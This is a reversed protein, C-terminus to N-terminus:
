MDLNTPEVESSLRVLEGCAIPLSEAPTREGLGAATAPVEESVGHIVVIRKALSFNEYPSVKTLYDKPNPDDRMLDDLLDMVSTSRRYVIAGAPNAIPGYDMGDVQSSLNSDLPILVKGYFNMGEMADIFGDQNADANQDPCKGGTTIFQYHKIGAPAGSIASEFSVEDGNLRVTVSGMTSGAIGQNLSQLNARYIGDVDDRLEQHEFRTHHSKKKDGCGSLVVLCLIMFFIKSKQSSVEKSM